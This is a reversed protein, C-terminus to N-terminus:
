MSVEKSILTRIEAIKEEDTREFADQRLPTEVNTSIHNDGLEDIKNLIEEKM